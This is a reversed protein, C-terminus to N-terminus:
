VPSKTYFHATIMIIKVTSSWESSNVSAESMLATLQVAATETWHSQCSTPNARRLIAEKISRIIWTVHRLFGFVSVFYILMNGDKLM